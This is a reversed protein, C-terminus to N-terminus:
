RVCYAFYYALVYMNSIAHMIFCIFIMRDAMELLVCSLSECYNSLATIMLYIFCPLIRSTKLSKSSTWWELVGGNWYEVMGITWEM